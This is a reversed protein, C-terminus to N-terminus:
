PQSNFCMLSHGYKKRAPLVILNQIVPLLLMHKSSYPWGMKNNPKGLCSVTYIKANNENTEIFTVNYNSQYFSVFIHNQFFM